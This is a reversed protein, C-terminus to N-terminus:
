WNRRRSEKAMENRRRRQRKLKYHHEQEKRGTPIKEKETFAHLGLQNLLALPIRLGQNRLPHNPRLLPM